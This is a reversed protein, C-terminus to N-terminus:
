MRSQWMKNADNCLNADVSTFDQKWVVLGKCTQTFYMNFSFFERTIGLFLLSASLHIAMKCRCMYDRLTLLCSNQQNRSVPQTKVFMSNQGNSSAEWLISPVVRTQCGILSPSGRLRHWKSKCTLWSIVVSTLNLISNSSNDFLAVGKEATTTSEEEPANTKFWDASSIWHPNDVLESYLSRPWMSGQRMCYSIERSTKDASVTTLKLWPMDTLPQCFGWCQHVTAAEEQPTRTNYVSKDTFTMKLLMSRGLCRSGQLISWGRREAWSDTQM